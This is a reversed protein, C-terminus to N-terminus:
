KFSDISITYLLKVKVDNYPVELFGENVKLIVINENPRNEIVKYEKENYIVIRGKQFLYYSDWYSVSKESSPVYQFNPKGSEKLFDKQFFLELAIDSDFISPFHFKTTLDIIKAKKKEAIDGSMKKFHPTEYIIARLRQSLYELQLINVFEQNTLNRSKM